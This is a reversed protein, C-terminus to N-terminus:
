NANDVRQLARLMEQLEPKLAQNRCQHHEILAVVDPHSGARRALDAGLAPHHYARALPALWGDTHPSLTSLTGPAFKNLLVLVTRYPLSVGPAKGVDHLLAARVLREDKHGQAELTRAVTVAHAQDSAQQAFFLAQQQQILREKVWEVDEETLTRRIFRWVQKVRYPLM